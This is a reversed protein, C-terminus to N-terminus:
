LDESSLDKDHGSGGERGDKGLSIIIPDGGDYEYVFERKWPDKPTKKLYPDPGWSDCEDESPEEVLGDFGSPYTGCDTYYMNLANVIQALQIKAQKAKAKDQAGTFQPLLVAALGGIIAIVIMIEILTM